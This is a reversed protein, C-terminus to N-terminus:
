VPHWGPPENDSTKQLEYIVIVRDLADQLAPSDKAARRIKGWLQDDMMHDVLPRGDGTRPDYDWGIEKRTSPDAGMERAYTIGNVREYVYIHRADSKPQNM